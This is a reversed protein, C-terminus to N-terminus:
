GDVDAAAFHGGDDDWKREVFSSAVYLSDHCSLLFQLISLIFSPLRSESEWNKAM